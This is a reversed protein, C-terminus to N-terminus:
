NGPKLDRHVVGKSHAFELAQCVEEAIRVAEPVALRHDPAKEILGEVDGGQMLQSVLYPTGARGLGGGGPPLSDDRRGPGGAGHTCTTVQHFATGCESCFKAAEPNERGCAPCTM